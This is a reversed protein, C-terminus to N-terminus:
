EGPIAFLESVRYHLGPLVGEGTVEDPEEVVYFDKGPRYVTVARAEPDVLWVLPVGRHLFQSVRRNVKAMRDEPSLVEVILKPLHTVHKRSMKKLARREDFLMIDPGRLVDPRRKVLLGTDNCCVYGGKGRRIVFQWLLHVILACIVGHFEGPPPMEVIEGEDLELRKGKNEPRDAWKYFEAVTLLKTGAIAM